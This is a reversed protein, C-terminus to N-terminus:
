KGDEQTKDPPPPLRLIEYIADFNTPEKGRARCWEEMASSCANAEAIKDASTTGRKARVAAWLVVLMSADPDRGMLVFMPEDPEAADYCDFKGPNNKTGM